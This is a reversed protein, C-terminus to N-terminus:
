YIYSKIDFTLDIYFEQHLLKLIYLEQHQLKLIYLEQSTYQVMSWARGVVMSLESIIICKAPIMILSYM